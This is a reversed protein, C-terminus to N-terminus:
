TIRVHDAQCEALILGPERKPLDTPDVQKAAASVTLPEPLRYPDDAPVALSDRWSEQQHVTTSAVHIRPPIRSDPLLQLGPGSKETVAAASSFFFSTDQILSISDGSIRAYYEAKGFSEFSFCSSHQQLLQIGPVLRWMQLTLQM